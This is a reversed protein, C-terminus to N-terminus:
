QPHRFLGKNAKAHVQHSKTTLFLYQAKM